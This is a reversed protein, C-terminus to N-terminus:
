AHAALKDEMYDAFDPISLNLPRAVIEMPIRSAIRSLFECHEQRKGILDVFQSKFSQRKLINIKEKGEVVRCALNQRELRRLIYIKKLPFTGNHIVSDLNYSWKDKKYKLKQGEGLMSSNELQSISDFHLRIAASGSSALFEQAEENWELVLRDDCFMHHGRMILQSLLTSKGAGARGSFLILKDDLIVSSGHLTFQGRMQLLVTFINSHVYPRVDDLQADPHLQVHVSQKDPFYFLGIDTIDFFLEEGKVAMGEKLLPRFLNDVESLDKLLLTFDPMPDVVGSRLELFEIESKLSFGHLNYYHM